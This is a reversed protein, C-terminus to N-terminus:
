KVEVMQREGFIGEDFIAAGMLAMLNSPIAHWRMLAAFADVPDFAAVAVCAVAAAVAAFAAAAFAAAAFTGALATIAVVGLVVVLLFEAFAVIEPKFGPCFTLTVTLTFPM